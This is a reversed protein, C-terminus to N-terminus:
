THRAPNQGSPTYSGLPSCWFSPINEALPTHLGIIIESCKELSSICHGQQPAQSM